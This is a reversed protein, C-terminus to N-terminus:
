PEKTREMQGQRGGKKTEKKGKKKTEKHRLSFFRPVSMQNSIPQHHKKKDM